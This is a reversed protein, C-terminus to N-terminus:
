RFTMEAAYAIALGMILVWLACAFAVAWDIHVNESTGPRISERM